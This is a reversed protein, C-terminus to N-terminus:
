ECYLGEKLTKLNREMIDLFTVGQEFQSATLNGAPNLILVRTGTEQSLVMAMKPNMLEESFVTRIDNNKVLKVIRALHRPSPEADPSLGYVSIQELGYRRALYGFAAHGGSVLKKFACDTLGTMLAKDLKDLKGSYIRANSLYLGGNEPDSKALVEGIVQVAHSSLALDMWFHPDESYDHGGNVTGKSDNQEDPRSFGPANLIEISVTDRNGISRAFTGAWPQIRESTYLFIDARSLELIDSPRPEWSHPDVGPPLLLHVDAASGGVERAFDFLPFVSAVVTLRDSDAGSALAPISCLLIASILKLFAKM